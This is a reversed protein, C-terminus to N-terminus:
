GNFVVPQGDAGVWVKDEAPVEAYTKEGYYMSSWTEKTYMGDKFTKVTGHAKLYNFCSDRAGLYFYGSGFGRTYWNKITFPNMYEGGIPHANRGAADAAAFLELYRHKYYNFYKHDQLGAQPNNEIVNLVDNGLRISTGSTYMFDIVQNVAMSSYRLYSMVYELKAPDNEVQKSVVNFNKGIVVLTPADGAAEGVGGEEVGIVPTHISTPPAVFEMRIDLASDYSAQILDLHGNLRMENNQYSGDFMFACAEQKPNNDYLGILFNYQAEIHSTSFDTGYCFYEEKQLINMVAETYFKEVMWSTYYGTEPTIKVMKTIPKKIYDIGPYLNENTFGVVVEVDRGQSDLKLVTDYNAGALNAFFADLFLADYSSKYAGSYAIADYNALKDNGRGEAPRPDAKIGNVEDEMYQCFTLFEVVSSPTGDDYTGKLGDPGVCLDEKSTQYKGNKGMGQGYNLGDEGTGDYDSFYLTCGFKASHYKHYGEYVAEEFETDGDLKAAAIYLQDREWLQTYMAYGCHQISGATGYYHGDGGQFYPRYAEPVREYYYEDTGPVKGNWLEDLCVIGDKLQSILPAGHSFGLIDFASNKLSEADTPVSGPVIEIVAGTYDGIAKAGWEPDNAWQEAIYETGEKGVGGGWGIPISIIVKGDETTGGPGNQDDCAVAFLAITICLILSLLKKM